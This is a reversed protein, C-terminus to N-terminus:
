PPWTDDGAAAHKGAGLGVSSPVFERRLLLAPQLRSAHLWEVAPRADRPVHGPDLASALVNFPSATVGLFSLNPTNLAGRLLLVTKPATIKEDMKGKKSKGNEAM